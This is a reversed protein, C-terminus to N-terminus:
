QSSSSLPSASLKRLLAFLDCADGVFALQWGTSTQRLAHQAFDVKWGMEDLRGREDPRLWLVQFTSTTPPDDWGRTRSWRVPGLRMIENQFAATAIEPRSSVVTLDAAVVDFRNLADPLASAFAEVMADLEAQKPPRGEEVLKGVIPLLAHGYADIVPDAYWSGPDPEGLVRADFWGNGLATALGENLQAYAARGWAQHRYFAQEWRAKEAEPQRMWLYHMFEHFVTGAADPDPVDIVVELVQLAGQSHGHTTVKQQGMGKQYPLLALRPPDLPDLEADFFAAAKRLSQPFDAKALGAELEAKRLELRAAGQNWWLRRHLPELAALAAGLRSAHEPGLWPFVRATMDAADTSDLAVRELVDGLNTSRQGYSPLHLTSLDESERSQRWADLREQVPSWEKVRARFTAAMQPSRHPEDILCELLYYLDHTPSTLIELPRRSPEQAVGALSLLVLLFLCRKVVAPRRRLVVGAAEQGDEDRGMPLSVVARCAVASGPM